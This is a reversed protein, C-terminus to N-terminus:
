QVSCLLRINLIPLETRKQFFFPQFHLFRNPMDTFGFDEEEVAIMRKAAPKPLRIAEDRGFTRTGTHPFGM